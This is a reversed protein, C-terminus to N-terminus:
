DVASGARGREVTGGRSSPLRDPGSEIALIRPDARNATLRSSQTAVSMLLAAMDMTDATAKYTVVSELQLHKRVGRSPNVTGTRNTLNSVV